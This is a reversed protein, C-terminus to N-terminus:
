RTTPNSSKLDGGPACALLDAPATAPEDVAPEILLRYSRISGDPLGVRIHPGNERLYFAYNGPLIWEDSPKVGAFVSGGGVAVVAPVESPTVVVAGALAGAVAEVRIGTSHHGSAVAYIGRGKEGCAVAFVGSDGQGHAAALVRNEEYLAAAVVAKASYASAIPENDPNERKTV